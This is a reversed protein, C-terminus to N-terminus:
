APFAALRPLRPNLFLAPIILLVLSYHIWADTFKEEFGPLGGGRQRLWRQYPFCHSPEDREVIRFIRLLQAHRRIRRSRLLAAVQRMGRFETIMVLRCLKFFLEDNGVIAQEDLDELTRGFILRVFRDIYGCTGGVALPMRAQSQFYHRFMRYHRREDHMHKDVAAIFETEHPYRQRLAALLRELGRYGQYENHLYVSALVDYYRRRFANLMDPDRMVYYMRYRTCAIGHLPPM